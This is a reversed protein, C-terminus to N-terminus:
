NIKKALCLYGDGLDFRNFPKLITVYFKILSNSFLLSNIFLLLTKHESHDIYGQGSKKSKEIKDNISDEKENNIKEFILKNRLKSTINLIPFGYSSLNIIKFSNNSIKEVLEKKEYRRFHGAVDDSAGWNKMRSPVSLLIFGGPLLLSNIKNLASVDNEIHELVEFAVILSYKKDFIHTMFDAEIIKVNQDALKGGTKITAENSFDILDGNKINKLMELAFDGRGPGIELFIDIKKFHKKLISLALYQRFSARPFILQKSIKM